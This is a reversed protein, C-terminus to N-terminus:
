NKKVPAGQATSESIRLTAEDFLPVDQGARVFLLKRVPNAPFTEFYQIGDPATGWDGCPPEPMDGKVETKKLEKRYAANPVFEFRKVGAIAKGETYPALVCKARVAAPAHLAWVRQMAAESTEGPKLDVVDVLSDPEGGDSYQQVLVAGKMFLHIKRNGYDCREAWGSLGASASSFKEWVCGKDAKRSVPGSQAALSLAASMPSGTLLTSLLLGRAAARALSVTM